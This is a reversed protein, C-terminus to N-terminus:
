RRRRAAAAGLLGLGLLALSTPEPIRGTDNIFLTASYYSLPDSGVSDGMGLTWIGAADEGIFAALLEEPIFSGDTMVPGVGVGAQDDFTVVHRGGVNPSNPYTGSAKTSGQAIGDPESSYTYVLDVRTGRRRSGDPSPGPGYSNDVASTM